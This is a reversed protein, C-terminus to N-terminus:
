GEKEEEEEKDEEKDEEKKDKNKMDEKHKNWKSALLTFYEENNLGPNEEKVKTRNDKIFQQYANPAKKVKEIENGDADVDVKKPRKKPAAKAAKAPKAAKVGLAKRPAKGGKNEEKVKEKVDKIAKKYYEDIEKKSNLTDSMNAIAEKILAAFTTASMKTQFTQQSQFTQQLQQNTSKQTTKQLQNKYYKKILNIM